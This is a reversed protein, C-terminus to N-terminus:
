GAADRVRQNVKEVIIREGEEAVKLDTAWRGAHISAQTEDSIVYVDYDPGDSRVAWELGEGFVYIGDRLDYTREYTQGPLEAPYTRLQDYMWHAGFDLAPELIRVADLRSLKAIAELDGKITISLTM